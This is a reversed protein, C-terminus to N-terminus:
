QKFTELSVQMEECDQLYAESAFYLYETLRTRAIADNTAAQSFGPHCMILAKDDIAALWQRFLSRYDVDQAFNYVGSFQANHLIQQKKLMRSFYWGGTAAIALVKMFFQNLFVQPFTSRVLCTAPLREKYIKLFVQRIGPLQHVHQHGDIFDPLRHFTSEFVDLQAQIERSIFATDIVGAHSKLILETLALPKKESSSLLRGETFNIHLGTYASISLAKLDAAQTSFDPMNVLCSTANIRNNAILDRIGLSVAHNYGYDDACLFFTKKNAPM